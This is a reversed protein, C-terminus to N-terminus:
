VRKLWANPSVTFPGYRLEIDKDPVFNKGADTKLFADTAEGASPGYDALIHRGNHDSDSVVLYSNRTTVLPAYLKLEEDVHEKTHVSDLVMLCKKGKVYPRIAEVTEQALCDRQIWLHSHSHEFAAPYIYHTELDIGIYPVEHMNLMDLVDMFFMASGGGYVGTEVIVEPKNEVILDYYRHLDFQNQLVPVGNWTCHALAVNAAHWLDDWSNFRYASHNMMRRITKPDKPRPIKELAKAEPM